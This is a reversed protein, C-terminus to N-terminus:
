RQRHYEKRHHRDRSHRDRSQSGHRHPSPSRSRRRRRRMRSEEERGKEESGTDFVMDYESGRVQKPRGAVNSRVWRGGVRGVSQSFDVHIRRDDVLVGEMKFYAEECAEKEAFEIFAYGLSNGTDRDRIINCSLIKGFRAFITNLDEDDTLANLKCVFLVNEAPKVDAYPLDGIMELTLANAKAEQKRLIDEDKILDTDTPDNSRHGAERRASELLEKPPLVPSPPPSTSSVTFPDDLIITHRSLIYELPRGKEDCIARNVKDLVDQGEAVEGVVVHQSDLYELKDALTIFVAGTVWKEGQKDKTVVLSVTGRAKHSLLPKATHARQYKVMGGTRNIPIQCTFDRQINEIESFTYLKNHCCTLFYKTMEPAEKTYLDIVLDGLSTEVLVSM